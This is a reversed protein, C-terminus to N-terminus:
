APTSTSSALAAIPHATVARALAARSASRHRDLPPCRRAPEPLELGEMHLAPLRPEELLACRPREALAEGGGGHAVPQGDVVELDVEDVVVAVGAHPRHASGFGPLALRGGGASTRLTSVRTCGSSRRRFRAAFRAM